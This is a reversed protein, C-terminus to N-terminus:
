VPWGAAAYAPAVRRQCSAWPEGVKRSGTGTRPLAMAQAQRFKEGPTGKGPEGPKAEM